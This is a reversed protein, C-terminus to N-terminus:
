DADDHYDPKFTIKAIQLQELLYRVEGKDWRGPLLENKEKIVEQIHLYTHAFNQDLFTSPDDLIEEWVQINQSLDEYFDLLSFNRDPHKQQLEYLKRQLGDKDHSLNVLTEVQERAIDEIIMRNNKNLTIRNKNM